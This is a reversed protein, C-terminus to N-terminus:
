GVRGFGSASLVGIHKDDGMQHHRSRSLVYRRTRITLGCTAGIVSRSTSRQPKHRRIASSSRNAQRSDPRPTAASGSTRPTRKPQEPIQAPQCVKPSPSLAAAISTEAPRTDPQRRACLRQRTASLPRTGPSSRRRLPDPDARESRRRTSRGLRRDCSTPAPSLLPAASLGSRRALRLLM